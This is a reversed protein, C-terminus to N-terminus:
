SGITPAMWDLGPINRFLGFAITLTLMVTMIANSTRPMRRKKAIIYTIYMPVLFFLLPNYHFAQHFDLRLLSTAARTIGCGPCYFGSLEHFLCPVGIKTAPLWVEM